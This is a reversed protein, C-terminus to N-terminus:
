KSESYAKLMKEFDNLQEILDEETYNKLKPSLKVLAEARKEYKDIFWMHFALGGKHPSCVYDYKHHKACLCIGNTVSYILASNQKKSVVHHAQLNNTAGCIQCRNGDRARVCLSWAELCKRRLIKMRRAKPMAKKEKM